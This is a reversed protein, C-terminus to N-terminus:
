KTFKHKQNRQHSEALPTAFRRALKTGSMKEVLINPPGTIHALIPFWVRVEFGLANWSWLKSRNEWRRSVLWSQHFLGENRYTRFLKKSATTPIWLCPILLFRVALQLKAIIWDNFWILWWQSEHFCPFIKQWAVLRAVFTKSSLSSTFLVLSVKGFSLNRFTFHETVFGISPFNTMGTNLGNWGIFNHDKSSEKSDCIIKM